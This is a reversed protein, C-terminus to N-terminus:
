VQSGKLTFMPLDETFQQQTGGFLHMQDVPLAVAGLLALVGVVKPWSV